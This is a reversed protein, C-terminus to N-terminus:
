CPYMKGVFGALWLYLALSNGSCICREEIIEWFCVGFGYMDSRADAPAGDLREPSMYRSAGRMLDTHAPIVSLGFDCIKARMDSGILVNSPQLHEIM